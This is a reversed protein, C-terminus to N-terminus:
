STFASVETASCLSFAPSFSSCTVFSAAVSSLVAGAESGDLAYLEAAESVGYGLRQGLVEVAPYRASVMPWPRLPRGFLKLVFGASYYTRPKQM